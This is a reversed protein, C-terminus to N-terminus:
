GLGGAHGALLGAAVAVVCVVVSAVVNLAASRPRGAEALELTDIAFTSFTTLAGCFGVGALLYVQRDAGALLLGIVFSGLANAALIAWPFPRPGAIRVLAYRLIAGPFAGLSILLVATM